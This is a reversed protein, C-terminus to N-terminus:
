DHVRGLSVAPGAKRIGVKEPLPQVMLAAHKDGVRVALHARMLHMLNIEKAGRRQAPIEYLKDIVANLEEKDLGFDGYEKRGSLEQAADLLLKVHEYAYKKSCDAHAFTKRTAFDLTDVFAGCGTFIQAHVAAKFIEPVPKGTEEAMQALCNYIGETSYRRACNYAMRAYKCAHGESHLINSLVAMHNLIKELRKSADEQPKPSRAPYTLYYVDNMLSVATLNIHNDLPAVEFNM